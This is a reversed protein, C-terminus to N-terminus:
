HEAVTVTGCQPAKACINRSIRSESAYRLLSAYLIEAKFQVRLETAAQKTAKHCPRLAVSPCRQRKKAHRATQIQTSLYTSGLYSNLGRVGGSTTSSDWIAKCYCAKAARCAKVRACVHTPHSGHEKFPWVEGFIAKWEPLQSEHARPKCLGEAPVFRSLGACFYRM